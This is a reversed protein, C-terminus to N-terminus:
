EERMLDVNIGEAKAEEILQAFRDILDRCEASTQRLGAIRIRFPPNVRNIGGRTISDWLADLNRGHWSPAGVANFFATYFEDTTNWGAAALIILTVIEGSEMKEVPELWVVPKGKRALVVYEGRRAASILDELYPGAEGVEVTKM